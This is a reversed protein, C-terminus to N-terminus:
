PRPVVKVRSAVGGTPAAPDFDRAPQLTVLSRAGIRLADAFVAGTASGSLQAQVSSGLDFAGLDRWAGDTTLPMDKVRIGASGTGITISADDAMPFSSNWALMVRYRGPTISSATWTATGTQGAALTRLSGGIADSAEGMTWSGAFAADGDDMTRETLTAPYVQVGTSVAFTASIGLRRVWNDPQPQLVAVPATAGGTVYPVGDVMRQGLVVQLNKSGAPRSEFKRLLKSQVILIPCIGALTIGLVILAVQVELLTIGRRPRPRSM